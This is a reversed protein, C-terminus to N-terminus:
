LFFLFRIWFFPRPSPPHTQYPQPSFSSSPPPLPFPRQASQINIQRPPLVPLHGPALASPLLLLAKLPYPSQDNAGALIPGRKPPRNSSERPEQRQILPQISQSPPPHCWVLSSLSPVRVWLAGEKTATTGIPGPFHQGPEQTLDGKTAARAALGTDRYRQQFM